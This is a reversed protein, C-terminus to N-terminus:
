VINLFENGAGCLLDVGASHLDVQSRYKPYYDRNIEAVTHFTTIHQIGM